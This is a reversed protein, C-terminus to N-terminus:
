LQSLVEKLKNINEGYATWDGEKQARQAEDFYKKADKILDNQSSTEQKDIDKTEIPIEKDAEIKKNGFIKELAQDLTEEMSIKNEYAVIVRKLEPIRGGQARIYLPRVYLLSEEIPIVLLNGQIVESGRQDWLSIQRSIEADQNIRNNIQKPGYILKQKGFQYVVLKGYNDGDSRAVMWAAMNDKQRPTFPIMLIFEESKEGPLKMILHRMIPDISSGGDNVYPIEWQDEKNYFIQPQEMHYTRYLKTQYNFLDEPYRLHKKLDKPMDALAKFTGPFIKEYTLILPDNLDALYLDMSGDYADIVVKVSNRMYNKGNEMIQAYPYKSSATYGDYIWQLSGDDAIVVYPDNDFELFPLLKEVRKEINRNYLIKSNNDLDNSLFIKLSGFHLAFAAKKFLNDIKVGGEGQYESFVNEEGQPFDFEQARSNVFVYDNSLEGFYIEPRTIQLSGIESAPPIDKIFLVPLGEETVRNVPGLTLGHGHTFTFRENIFSKSPLSDSNLERLSLMIQRYENDIQYRDNDVSVFDYYTRIEQIQSFTDLLPERDWLRINKITLENNEIDQATLLSDTTLERKEVQDIGWAKQTAEINHEIYPSEKALENPTVILKQIAAAYIGQVIGLSIYLGIAVYVLRNKKTYVNIILLLACIIAGIELIRMIPLNAHMDTYGAGTFLESTSYTLEPISIFHVQLALLLFILVGLISLHFKAAQNTVFNGNDVVQQGYAGAFKIIKKPFSVYGKIYYVAFCGILSAIVIFFLYGAAMKLFPITFFYFGINKNFIPDVVDFPTYNLYKLVTEWQASAIMGAFLGLILGILLIIKNIIKSIDLNFKELLNGKSSSRALFSAIRINLYILIFSIIGVGAGIFIKAFLITSFLKGYGLEDFWLWDVYIALIGPLVVFFLILLFSIISIRIFKKFNM